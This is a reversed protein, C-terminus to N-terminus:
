AKNLGQVAGACRACLEPEDACKGVSESYNWCRPCKEGKASDIKIKLTTDSVDEMDGSAEPAVSAQSVKFISALLRENDKLFKQVADDSSAITVMAELSSGIM